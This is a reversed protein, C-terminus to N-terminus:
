KKFTSSNIQLSKHWELLEYRGFSLSSILKLIYFLTDKPAAYIITRFEKITKARLQVWAFRFLTFKNKKHILFAPSPHELILPMESINNSLIIPCEKFDKETLRKLVKLRGKDLCYFMKVGQSLRIWCVRNKTTLKQCKIISLPCISIVITVM